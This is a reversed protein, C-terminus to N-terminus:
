SRRNKKRFDELADYLFDVEEETVSEMFMANGERIFGVQQLFSNLQRGIFDINSEEVADSISEASYSDGFENTYEFKIKLKRTSSITQTSIM